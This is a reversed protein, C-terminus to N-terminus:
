KNGRENGVFLRGSVDFRLLGGDTWRKVWTRGEKGGVEEEKDDGGLRLLTM